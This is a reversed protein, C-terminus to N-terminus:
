GGASAPGHSGIGVAFATGDVKNWFTMARSHPGGLHDVWLQLLAQKSLNTTAEDPHGVSRHAMVAPILDARRVAARSFRRVSTRSPKASAMAGKASSRGCLGPM